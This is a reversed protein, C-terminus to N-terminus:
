TRSYLVRDAGRRGTMPRFDGQGVAMRGDAGDAGVQVV